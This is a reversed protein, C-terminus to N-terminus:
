DVQHRKLPAPWEGAASELIAAATRGVFTRMEPVQERDLVAKMISKERWRTATDDQAMWYSGQKPEYLAVSFSEFRDLVEICDNFRAVLTAEPTSLIPREKRLEEFFPLPADFMWRRVTPWHDEEAIQDLRELYDTV